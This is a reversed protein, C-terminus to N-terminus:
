VDDGLAEARRLLVGGVLVDDELQLAVLGVTGVEALAPLAPRLCRGADGTAHAHQAQGAEELM